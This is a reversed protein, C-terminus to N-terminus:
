DDETYEIEHLRYNPFKEQYIKQESRSMSLIDIFNGHNDYVEWNFKKKTRPM